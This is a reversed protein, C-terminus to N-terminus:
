VQLLPHSTSFNSISAYLSSLIPDISAFITGCDGASVLIDTFAAIICIASEPRVQQLATDISDVGLYDIVQASKMVERSATNFSTMNDVVNSDGVISFMRSKARVRAPFSKPGQLFQIPFPLIGQKNVISPYSGQVMLSVISDM